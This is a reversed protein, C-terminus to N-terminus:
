AQMHEMNPFHGETLSLQKEEWMNQCSIDQMLKVRYFLVLVCTNLPRQLYVCVCLYMLM